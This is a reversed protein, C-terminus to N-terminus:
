DNNGNIKSRENERSDSFFKQGGKKRWIRRPETPRRKKRKPLLLSKIDMLAREIAKQVQPDSKDSMMASHLSDIRYLVLSFSFNRHPVKLHDAASDIVLRILNYACVGLIIEKAIIEPSKAQIFNMALTSKIDRIDTEVNWRLAYLKAIEKVPLNLSTFLFLKEDRFGKRKMTLWVIKGKVKQEGFEPYKLAERSSASWTFEKEGLATGTKGIYRHTNKEKLRCLVDHGQAVGQAAFRFCGFYRDGIVLSGKPLATIVRDSLSLESVAKSGNYPGFSPRLAVGTQVNTALCMRVLPFHAKGHQNRYQPYELLNLPTHAIRLTTGDIVYIDQNNSLMRQQQISDLLKDAVQEVVNLSLRERAHSYGGTSSSIRKNRARISGDTRSLLSGAGERRFDEIVKALSKNPKLRQSIMLWIVVSASYIGARVSVGEAELLNGIFDESIVKEYFSLPDKLKKM